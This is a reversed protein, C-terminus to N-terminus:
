LLNKLTQHINYRTTLGVTKRQWKTLDEVETMSYFVEYGTVKTRLPVAEWWVEISSESTAMAKVNLPARVINRDTRFSVISSWPGEGKRTKARVRFKYETNDDLDSYVTRRETTSRMRKEDPLLDKWFQIDYMTIQFKFLPM